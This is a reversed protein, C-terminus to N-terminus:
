KPLKSKIKEIQKELKEIEEKALRRNKLVDISRINTTLSIYHRLCDVAKQKFLIRHDKSEPISESMEIYSGATNRYLDSSTPNQIM